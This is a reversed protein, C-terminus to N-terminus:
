IIPFMLVSLGFRKDNACAFNASIVPPSRPYGSSHITDKGAQLLYQFGEPSEETQM